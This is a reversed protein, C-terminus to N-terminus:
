IHWSLLYKLFVTQFVDESDERSNLRVFCIRRVLDAYQEVARDAESESKM